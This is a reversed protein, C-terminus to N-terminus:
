VAFKTQKQKPSYELGIIGAFAIIALSINFLIVENWEPKNWYTHYPHFIVVGKFFIVVIGSVMFIFFGFAAYLMRLALSQVVLLIATVVEFIPIAYTLVNAVAINGVITKLWLAFWQMDLLKILGDYFFHFILLLRILWTIVIVTKM